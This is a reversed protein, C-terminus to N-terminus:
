SASLLTNAGAIRQSRRKRDVAAALMQLPRTAFHEKLAADQWALAEAQLDPSSCVRRVRQPWEDLTACLCAPHCILRHYPLSQHGFCLAGMSAADALAQGAGFAFLSAFYRCRALPALYHLLEGWQPPDPLHNYVGDRLLRYRAPLGLYRSLRSVLTTAEAETLGLTATEAGHAMRQAQRTRDGALLTLTRWEVFIAEEAAPAATHARVLPRSIASEWLYPCAVPQPVEALAAPAQLRHDLFLDYGDLVKRQSIEYLADVHENMYYAFLARSRRPPRLCSDLSIVVDYADWDIDDPRRLHTTHREITAREDPHSVGSMWTYWTDRQQPIVIWDAKLLITMQWFLARGPWYCLIDTPSSDAWAISRWPGHTDLLQRVLAVKVDCDGASELGAARRAALPWAHRGATARVM